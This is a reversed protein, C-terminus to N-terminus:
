FRGYMHTLDVMGDPRKQMEKCIQAHVSGLTITPTHSQTVSWGKQALLCHACNKCHGEHTIRRQKGAGRAKNQETNMQATSDVGRKETVRIAAKHRSTV